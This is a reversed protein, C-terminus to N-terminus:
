KGCAEKKARSIIENAWSFCDYAIGCYEPPKARSQVSLLTVKEQFKQSDCCKPIKVDSCFLRPVTVEREVRGPTRTGLLFEIKKYDDREAAFGYESVPNRIFQHPTGGSLTLCVQITSSKNWAGPYGNYSGPSTPNPVGRARGPSYGSPDYRGSFEASELSNLM